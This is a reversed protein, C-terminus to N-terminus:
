HDGTTQDALVALPRVPGDRRSTRRAGLEFLRYPDRLEDIREAAELWRDQLFSLESPARAVRGDDDLERSADLHRCGGDLVGTADTAADAAAEVARPPREDRDRIGVVAGRGSAPVDEQLTLRLADAAARAAGWTRDLEALSRRITM